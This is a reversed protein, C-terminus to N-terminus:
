CGCDRESPEVLCVMWGPVVDGTIVGLPGSDNFDVSLIQDAPETGFAVKRNETTRYHDVRVQGVCCRRGLRDQEAVEGGVPAGCRNGQGGPDCARGSVMSSQRRLRCRRRGQVSDRGPQHGEFRPAVDDRGVGVIGHIRMLREIRKHNVVWGRRRLEGMVRPSGYTGDSDEHIRRIEGVLRRETVEAMSVVGDRHQKWDYFASRSVGAIGCVREVPFASAKQEDVFRYLM